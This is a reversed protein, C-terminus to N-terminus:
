GIESYADGDDVLPCSNLNSTEAVSSNCQINDEKTCLTSCFDIMVKKSGNNGDATTGSKSAGANIPTDSSVAGKRLSSDSNHDKSWHGFNRCEHCPFRCKM